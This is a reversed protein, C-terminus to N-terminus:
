AGARPPRRPGAPRDSPTPRRPPRLAPTDAVPARARAQAREGRATELASELASESLGKLACFNARTLTTTEFARLLNARERRAEDDAARAARQAQMLAEREAARRALHVDRRRALEEVAAQRHEEAIEGAPLGDLDFRHPANALAKLYATSTTYRSFYIGLVRKSFLGPARTQIDSQIRLKLPKQPGPAGPPAFLAPFLEALRAGCAAPSLEPPPAAPAEVPPVPEAPAAPDSTM